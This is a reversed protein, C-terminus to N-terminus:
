SGDRLPPRMSYPAYGKWFSLSFSGCLPPALNFFGHVTLTYFLFFYSIVPEIGEHPLLLFKFFSFSIPFWSFALFHDKDLFFFVDGQCLVARGSFFSWAGPDPSLDFTMTPIGYFFFSSGERPLGPRAPPFIDFNRNWFPKEARKSFLLELPFEPPPPPPLTSTILVEHPPLQHFCEVNYPISRSSGNSPIPCGAEISIHTPPFYPGLKCFFRFGLM